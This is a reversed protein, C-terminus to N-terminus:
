LEEMAGFRGCHNKWARPAVEDTHVLHLTM